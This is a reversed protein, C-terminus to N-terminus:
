ERGWGSPEGDDRRYIDKLWLISQCTSCRCSMIRAWPCKSSAPMIVSRTRVQRASKWARSFATPTPPPARKSACSRRIGSSSTCTVTVCTACLPSGSIGPSRAAVQGHRAVWRDSLGLMDVAPLRSYYPVAGAAAVAIRLTTNPAAAAGLARGALIWNSDPDTLQGFLQARSGVPTRDASDFTLAHHISGATVLVVIISRWIVNSSIALTIWALVLILGPLAAVLLRFEMFDGGIRVVYITWLATLLVSVKMADPGRRLLMFGALVIVPVLPLLWYSRLFLVIYRLGLRLSTEAGIKVYYTNPLIDGYYWLKWALWSGAIAALPLVLAALLEVDARGQMYARWGAVALLVVVILAADPRTLFLAGTVASLSLLRRSTWGDVQGAAVCYIGTCILAAHLSTELGGTAFISFTYNTGLLFTSLIAGPLGLMKKGAEFIAILSVAFFTLGFAYSVIGPDWGALPAVAMLLTFLFTSYGEVYEGANWVLGHGSALNESYRFIIFADDQLFRNHAALALLPCLLLAELRRM